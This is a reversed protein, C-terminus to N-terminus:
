RNLIRQSFLIFTFLPVVASVVNDPYWSFRLKCFKKIHALINEPIVTGPCIGQFIYHDTLSAHVIQAPYATFIKM